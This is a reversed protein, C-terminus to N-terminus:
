APRAALIEARHNWTDRCLCVNFGLAGPPACQYKDYIEALGCKIVRFFALDAQVPSPALGFPMWISPIPVIGHRALFEAGALFDEAPELGVVFTSCAKNPGYKRAIHLLAELARARGTWREKGPCIRRFLEENWIEMDCAVCHAGATFLADIEGAVVPPTTYVIVQGPINPLGVLEDIARLMEVYRAIEREPQFTSGGTLQICSACREVNVAYNVAEAVDRPSFLAEEAPGTAAQRQTYNGCHCFKCAAGAQAYACPWLYPFALVDHGQLVAMGRFSVGRATKQQYFATKKPLFVETVLQDEHLLRLSNGAGVRLHFPAAAGLDALHVVTQDPLILGNCERPDRSIRHTPSLAAYVEEAVCVGHTLLLVKLDLTDIKEAGIRYSETM